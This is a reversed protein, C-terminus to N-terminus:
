SGTARPTFLTTFWSLLGDLRAFLIQVLAQGGPTAWLAVALAALGALALLVLQFTSIRQRYLRSVGKADVLKSGIRLRTLFTSSMGARGKDLFEELTGHTGVAVIVSAGKEDALLMAIDESTGSAPFSVAGEALGLEALREMGPARGDRYAHVVLESGSRLARDSVSDMDGIIMDPRFGAELVADAGGDVGIIVPRNERLFPKLTALDEKYHYGRVVILVPRGDMRTAVEPAGIGDLLLDRERLMYEMTNEAFLELQESLGERSAVQSATVSADDQRAGEAIPEGELLVWGDEVTIREGDRIGEFVEDGLSDVLVIGADVLIRPGANPYRGSTSAAVNLVAAPEREVLAEAAVRDIDEHDIIAIEGPRLRKTLDKTRKGLRAVGETRAASM